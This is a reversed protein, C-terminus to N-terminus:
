QVDPDRYEHYSRYYKYKRYKYGHKTPALLDPIVALVPMDYTQMLYDSDQIRDDLLERIIIIGCILVFGVIAGLLGNRVNSPGSKGAPVVASDVIRASTGEVISSIKEPLVQAITNAIHASIEPDNSTVNVRFIETNNVSSATIMGALTNYSCTLNGREIVENLTTRTRLIVVYTDILSKAASLEGQTINVKTDGLSINSSNVYMLASATYQSPIFMKSYTFAAGGFLAVVLVIAWIQRWLAKLLRLLDIEMGEEKKHEM